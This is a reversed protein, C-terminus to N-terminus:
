GQRGHEGAMVSNFLAADHQAMPDFGPCSRGAADKKTSTLRQLAQKGPTPDDVADRAHLYRANARLLVERYRFLYAVGERPM